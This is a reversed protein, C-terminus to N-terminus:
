EALEDDKGEDAWEQEGDGGNAQDDGQNVEGAAFDQGPM